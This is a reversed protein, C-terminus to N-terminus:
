QGLVDVGKPAQFRFYKDDIAQNQKINNFYFRNKGYSDETYFLSLQQQATLGLVVVNPQGDDQHKNKPTLRYFIDAKKLWQKAEKPFSKGVNNQQIEQINFVQELSKADSLLTTLASDTVESVPKVTVQALDMDYHYFRKGDSVLQMPEPTQYHWRFKLPKKLWVSGISQQVVKGDQEVKQEFGGSFTKLQKFFDSINSQAAALNFSLVALLTFFYKM